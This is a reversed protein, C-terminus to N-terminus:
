GAPAGGSIDPSIDPDAADTDAQTGAQTETPHWGEPRDQAAAQRFTGILAEAAASLARGRRHLFGIQRQLGADALPACILGETRGADIASRPLIAIGMGARVGALATSMYNAEMAIDIEAGRRILARDLLRRVSSNPKTVIQPYAICDALRMAGAKGALPHDQPFFACLRDSVFESVVLDRDPTLRQGIGLDVRDSRILSLIEEAVVDWIEVEVAPHARRFAKLAGPLLSAAVSPLVALRVKGRQGSGLDASAALLTEYGTGIGELIPLLDRGAATLAVERKTRDFLRLGLQQELLNIQATVAPQSMHLERGARTFQLHRAVSLFARIQKTTPYYAM